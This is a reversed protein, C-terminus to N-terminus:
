KLLSHGNTSFAFGKNAYEGIMIAQILPKVNKNKANLAVIFNAGSGGTDDNKEIVYNLTGMPAIGIPKTVYNRVLNGASDFYDIKSIFLSDKFSTNRISLTAALLSKQNTVDIYIDSYIPVYVIDKYVMESKNINHDLELSKLEDNGANNVNPDPNGCSITLCFLITLLFSLQKM